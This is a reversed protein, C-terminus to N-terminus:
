FLISLMLRYRIKLVAIVLSEHMWFMVDLDIKQKLKWAGATAFPQRWLCLYEYSMLMDVIATKLSM